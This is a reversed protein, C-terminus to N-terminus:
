YIKIYEQASKKWSNDTNMANTVLKNWVKKDQICRIADQLHLSCRMHMIIQLVLDM